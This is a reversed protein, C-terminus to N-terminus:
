EKKELYYVLQEYKSTYSCTILILQNDKNEFSLQESKLKTKIDVVKYNNKENNHYFIVENDYTLKYLNKFYANKANGSHSALVITNSDYLIAIDKDVDNINMCKNLNIKNIILINQCKVEDYSDSLNYTADIVMKNEQKKTFFSLLIIFIILFCISGNVLNRLM